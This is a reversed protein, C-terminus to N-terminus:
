RGYLIRQKKKAKQKLTKVRKLWYAANKCEASCFIRKEGGKIVKFPAECLQCLKEGNELVVVVKGLLKNLEKM